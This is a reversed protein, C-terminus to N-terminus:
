DPEAVARLDGLSLAFGGKTTGTLCGFPDRVRLLRPSASACGTVVYLWYQKRLNAAKAWENDTLIVDGSGARGKVEICRRQEITAAGSHASLLDFGPADGLGALRALAPKSVDRVQAGFSQEYAMAFRMATTEIQEEYQERDAADISPIILAHAIFHVEGHTVADPAADLAAFRAVRQASLASLQSKVATFEMSAQGRGAEVAEKLTKRRRLLEVEQQGFGIGVLRRREPLDTMLRDRQEQVARVGEVERLYRGADETLMRAMRATAFAGPAAGPKPRCLLLQEIACPEIRGSALQKLAVLRYEIVSGGPMDLIPVLALHFLWDEIATPDIFVGGCLATPGFQDKITTTVADFVPEGPHLWVAVEGASPRVFTLHRQAADPYSELAPAIHDLAGKSISAFHFSGDSGSPIVKLGLLPAAREILGQMYGPMLRLYREREMDEKMRPLRSKVDGGEGYFAQERELLARAQDSTLQGGLTDALDEGLVSRELYTKLPVNEFLRGIVDFVKDTGLARRIEELKKLLTGMVKGERTSTAVLNAIFVYEKKQGYRHIRGMRQELRAPNWPIDYNFMLWCFQLNVGEGAADTAILYKAGGETPGARFLAVQRDREIYDMGGHLRAVQGTFGIAELRDSLYNATDRHETFVLMKEDRFQADRMTELLKDFKSENGRALIRDAQRVLSDVTDREVMLDAITAATTVGLTTDEAAEHAEGGEVADEDATTKDLLDGQDNAKRAAIDQARVLADSGEAQVLEILKSLRDSRRYLSARLAATSSALRRQFVGMVLRAASRNLGSASNYLTRIYATADEYLTQEAPSLDFGLTDCKRVPYLPRGDLTVMEEKTRRVFYRDRRETPFARLTEPTTFTDPELLRWLAFYPYEKGMHPTATLLMLSAPKWGLDWEPAGPIGALAEGLEYRATKRVRMDPDRDASLKHAEDVVVLDYAKGALGAQRLAEFMRPSRLTDISVVVFDSEADTFPNGRNLDVGRIARAQIRFLTRMERQWNGLLGAPAVVLVRRALRRSRLEQVALGAMITKGAGADDALLFRIPWHSIIHEYVAVRQHPLPDILSVETAFTPSALHGFSLRAAEAVAAVANPDGTFELAQPYDQVAPLATTQRCANALEELGVLARNDPVFAGAEWRSVTVNTVGLRTAFAAQTLGLGRRLERIVKPHFAVTTM